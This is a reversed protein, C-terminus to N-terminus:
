KCQEIYKIMHIIDCESGLPDVVFGFKQYLSIARLNMRSVNLYLERFGRQRAKAQLLELIQKGLNKGWYRKDGIYGWYEISDGRPNKLGAAGIPGEGVLEIGWIRYENRAGLSEYFERQQERTFAPTMTLAKIEPDNLWNWSLDLFRTDYPVLVISQQVPAGRCVVTDRCAPADAHSKRRM